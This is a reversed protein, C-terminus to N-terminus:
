KVIVTIEGREPKINTNLQCGTWRLLKETTYNKKLSRIECHDLYGQFNGLAAAFGGGGEIIKAWFDALGSEQSNNLIELPIAEERLRKDLLLDEITRQVSEIKLTKIESGDALIVKELFRTESLDIKRTRAFKCKVWFRSLDWWSLNTEPILDTRWKIPIQSKPNPIQIKGDIGAGVVGAATETVLNPENKLRGMEELANIRLYGLSSLNVYTEGPLLIEVAGEGEEWSHIVLNKERIELVTLRGRGDWFSGLFFQRIFFLFATLAMLFFALLALRFFRGLGAAPKSRRKM